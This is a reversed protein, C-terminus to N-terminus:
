RRSGVYLLLVTSQMLQTVQQWQASHMTHSYCAMPWHTLRPTDRNCFPADEKYMALWSPCTSTTVISSLWPALTSKGLSTLCTDMSNGSPQNRSDRVHCSMYLATTKIIDNSTPQTLMYIVYSPLPQGRSTHTCLPITTLTTFTNNFWQVTAVLPSSTAVTCYM